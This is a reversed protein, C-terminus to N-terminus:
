LCWIKIYLDNNLNKVYIPSGDWELNNNEGCNYTLIYNVFCDGIYPIMDSPKYQKETNDLDTYPIYEVPEYYKSRNIKAKYFVNRIPSYAFRLCESGQKEANLYDLEDIAIYATLDGRIPEKTVIIDNYIKTNEIDSDEMINESNDIVLDISESNENESESSNTEGHWESYESYKEECVINSLRVRDSSSGTRDSDGGIDNKSFANHIGEKIKDNNFLMKSPSEIGLKEKFWIDLDDSHDILLKTGISGVASGLVFWCFKNM